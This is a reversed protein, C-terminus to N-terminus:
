KTLNAFPRVGFQERFSGILDSEVASPAGDPLALWAFELQQADALQWVYRGGWHGVNRGAGFGLYQRLRSRLTARSGPDGAKGIYLVPTNEVWNAALVDVSVNPNKGKFFGGSGTELFGPPDTNPRLLVYVGRENPIVAPHEALREVSVFGTFGAQELAARSRWDTITTATTKM